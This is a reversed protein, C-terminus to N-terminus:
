CHAALKAAAVRNLSVGQEAAELALHRHVDEPVRVVFRGSYSRESIPEPVPVGAGELDAVVEAALRAIGEFAASRDADLWSLSPLEAVIGVYEADESSWRVRYTYHDAANM